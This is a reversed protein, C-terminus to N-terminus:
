QWNLPPPPQGPNTWDLIPLSAVSPAAARPPYLVCCVTLQGRPRRAPSACRFSNPRDRASHRQPVSSPSPLLYEFVFEHSTGEGVSDALPCYLTAVTRHKSRRDVHLVPLPLRGNPHWMESTFRCTPPSQPYDPPFSLVANFFGGEYLTDPPGMVTVQWEFVNDENILGASFGDVPHKTLERLQRHLLLTAQDSMELSLRELSASYSSCFRNAESSNLCAFHFNLSSRLVSTRLQVKPSVLKL